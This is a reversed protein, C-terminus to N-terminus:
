KLLVEEASQYDAIRRIRQCRMTLTITRDDCRSSKLFDIPHVEKFMRHFIPEHSSVNFWESSSLISIQCAEKILGGDNFLCRVGSGHM